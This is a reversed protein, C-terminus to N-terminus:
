DDKKKVTLIKKFISRDIEAMRKYGMLDESRKPKIISAILELPAAHLFSVCAINSEISTDENAIADEYLENAFDTLIAPEQDKILKKVAEVTKDFDQKKSYTKVATDRIDDISIMNSYENYFNLFEAGISKGVKGKIVTYLYSNDINSKEIAYISDSLKTWSRPTPTVKETESTTHIYAPKKAIFRRIIPHVDNLQAWQLWGEADPKKEYSLFRDLLAPDFEQVNYNEDAPNVAAIVYSENGNTVPLKHGNIERNLVLELAANQVQLNARNLEDLFLVCEKGNASQERFETVWEPELWITSKGDKSPVPIGALDTEEILSTFLIKLYYGNEEAWQKVEESKGIGHVGEILLPDNAAKAITLLNKM